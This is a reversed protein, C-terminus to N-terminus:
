HYRRNHYTNYGIDTKSLVFSIPIKLAIPALFFSIVLTKLASVKIIPIHEPSNAIPIAHNNVIGILWTISLRVSKGFTACNFGTCAIIKIIM